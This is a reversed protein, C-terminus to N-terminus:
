ALATRQTKSRALLSTRAFGLAMDPRRQRMMRDSCAVVGAMSRNWYVTRGLGEM